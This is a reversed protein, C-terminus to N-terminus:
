ILCILQVQGMDNISLRIKDNSFINVDLIKKYKLNNLDAYDFWDDLSLFSNFFSLDLINLTDNSIKELNIELLIIKQEEIFFHIVDLNSHYIRSKNSLKDFKPINPFEIFIDKQNSGIKLNGLSYNKLIFEIYYM